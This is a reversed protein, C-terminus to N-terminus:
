QSYSSGFVNTMLSGLRARNPILVSAGSETTYTQLYSFDIVGTKINDLDIDKSYLGLQIIQELSLGTYVNDSMTNWLSPAQILLQPIMDLNLIRDRIAFISQQQREARQIDSSGHRTRAFRLADYGNLHHTGAPLYFPDYGYNMNPYQLDNITYDITIDIGGIVDVIDIFAQFDVAMYDHIRIGLNLQVTQQLLTPGYGVQRSEGFVMPTNIRQLETYGPVQVYLDRPISLIGISSTEPDISVLMMTDTRFALGTEGPRRDLGVLIMTFRSQGDWPKLEISSGDPLSLVDGDIESGDAVFETRADIPTPLEAVVNATPIVKIEDQPLRLIILIGLLVIAFVGMMAAAIIVWAWDSGGNRGQVRRKKSRERMNSNRSPPPPPPVSRAKQTYASTSYAPPVNAASPVTPQSSADYESDTVRSNPITNDNDDFNDPM